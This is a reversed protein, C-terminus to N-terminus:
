DAALFELVAAKYAKDGVTTMHDRNPVSVLRVDPFASGFAGAPGTINDKEGLVLLVPTKVGSLENASFSHRPRTMCQALAELDNRGQEAFLRFVRPVTEAVASADPARLGAAIAGAELVGRGYYNEGVGAIVARRVRSSADHLLRTAIFGGMSYGMVDAREHGLHDLLRIVDLALEGEDYALRDHPKSSEGHGRVDLAIVQRTAETLAGYWGPTRWNMSKSSAFGHVLVIPAGTGVVDYSLRIAPSVDLFPM